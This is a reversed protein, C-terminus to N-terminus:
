WYPLIGRLAVNIYTRCCKIAVFGYEGTLRCQMQESKGITYCSTLALLQVVQFYTSKKLLYSPDAKFLNHISTVYKWFM